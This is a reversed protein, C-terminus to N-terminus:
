IRAEPDGECILLRQKFPLVIGIFVVCELNKEESSM